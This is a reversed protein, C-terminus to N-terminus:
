LIEPIQLLSVIDHDPRYDDFVGLRRQNYWVPSIGVDRAGLVDSGYMDGVHASERPSVAMREMALEFIAPAPKRVGELSSDVIIEFYKAIGLEECKEPCSGDNNSIIGLRYGQQLLSELTEVAGDSLVREYPTEDFKRLIQPLFTPWDIEVELCQGFHDLFRMLYQDDSSLAGSSADIYLLYDAETFALVVDQYERQFGFEGLLETIRMLYTPKGEVLTDGFDFFVTSINRASTM